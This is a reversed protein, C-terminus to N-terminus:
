SASRRVTFHTRYGSQAHYRHVAATIYYQGSFRKGIGDIKIVKGVRLDTHGLCVGDGTILGLALDNLRAKAIQDAEAQNMVPQRTVLSVAAGFAADALKPGSSKGGMLSKEDGTKSQSVIEKKEKPNWARLNVEGVQRASTLRPYFELLYDDLTITMVEGQDNAVPRFILAKDEVVVEYQILRAREQLFDLDSQNAQVVYDHKVQSDKVEATLGAEGALQSAIDSDKQQVFTRTKSGRQLRHRRDYGRVLLSPRRDTAFEPELATIEGKILTALKSGYGLKIEVVKGVNFFQEDDVWPFSESPDNSGGVELTFMSPVKISDDVAVSIVYAKTTLPLPSGDIIVDFGPILPQNPNSVPM